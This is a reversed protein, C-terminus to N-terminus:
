IVGEAALQDLVSDSIGLLESLVMRSHQGIESGPWHIDGPSESFHPVIGPHLVPEEFLPDEVQRVMGRARFQPDSACDSADFIKSNPIDASELLRVLSNANRHRTWGAIIADLASANTVRDRNAGFRKDLPLDPLEILRSLKAFLPDSNAGILVWKGDKTPYANTPAATAIAGGMPEKIKGLAGFEPLLGEMISLVSESLAVDVTRPQGDGGAHDRQWLAAVIGFAAYLGALSDGISVGVRVPPLDTTGPPHNTVHRLGGVAEGILGFAARDRYPGDQGFGSIHSIVLNPNARRLDEVSLGLRALHGPRLNEVLADCTSALDLVLQRGRAAKLNIAVSKKNRAHVSWFLSHGAIQEGWQRAPDGTLPEIKIVEAGLDALLRSCFPAAIFHGIELVRLGTLPAQLKDEAAETV